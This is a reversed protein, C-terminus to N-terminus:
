GATARDVRATLQEIFQIHSKWLMKKGLAVMGPEALFGTSLVNLNGVRRYEATFREVFADMGWADPQTHLAYWILLNRREENVPIGLATLRAIGGDLERQAIHHRLALAIPEDDLGILVAYLTYHLRSIAEFSALLTANIPLAGEMPEAKQRVPGTLVM